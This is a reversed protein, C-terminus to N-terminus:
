KKLKIKYEAKQMKLLKQFDEEKLNKVNGDLLLFTRNGKEDPDKTCILILDPLDDIKKIKLPNYEYDIAKPEKWQDEIEEKLHHINPSVFSWGDPIYEPHLQKLGEDPLYEQFNQSYIDLAFKIIKLNSIDSPLSSKMKFNILSQRLLLLILIIIMFIIIVAFGKMLSNVVSKM